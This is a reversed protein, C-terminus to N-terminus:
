DNEDERYVEEWRMLNDCYNVVSEIFSLGEGEVGTHNDTVCFANDAFTVSIYPLISKNM